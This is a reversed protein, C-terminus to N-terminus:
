ISQFIKIPSFLTAVIKIFFNSGTPDIIHLVAITKWCLPIMAFLIPRAGSLLSAPTGTFMKNRPPPQPLPPRVRLIQIHINAKDILSLYIHKLNRQINKNVAM